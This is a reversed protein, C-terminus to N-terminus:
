LDATSQSVSSQERISRHQYSLLLVNYNYYMLLKSYINLYNCKSFLKSDNIRKRVMVNQIKLVNCDLVKGPNPSFFILSCQGSCTEKDQRNNGILGTSSPTSLLRTLEQGTTIRPSSSRIWVTRWVTQSVVQFVSLFIFHWILHTWHEVIWVPSRTLTVASCKLAPTIESVWNWLSM